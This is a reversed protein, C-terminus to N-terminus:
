SGYYKHERETSKHSIFITLGIDMHSQMCAHETERSGDPVKMTYITCIVYSIRAYIPKMTLKGMFLDYFYLM